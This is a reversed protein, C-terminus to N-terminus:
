DIELETFLRTSKQKKEERKNRRVTKSKDKKEQTYKIFHFYVSTGHDDYVNPNKRKTNTFYTKKKLRKKTLCSKKVCSWTEASTFTFIWKQRWM